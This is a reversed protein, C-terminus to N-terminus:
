RIPSGAGRESPHRLTALLQESAWRRRQPQLPGAVPAPEVITVDHVTVALVGVQNRRAEAVLGESIREAPLAVYSREAFLRYRGAQAVGRRWDRLKLEVAVLSTFPDTANVTATYTTEDDDAAVTLLGDVVLPRVIRQNLSRWGHPAWVRLDAESVTEQTLELLRTATSDPFAARTPLVLEDSCGAVLDAIGSGADIEDGVALVGPQARLWARVPAALQWEATFPAAAMAAMIRAPRYNAVTTM